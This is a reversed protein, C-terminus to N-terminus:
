ASLGAAKITKTSRGSVLRPYTAYEHAARPLMPVLIEQMIEHQLLQQRQMVDRLVPVIEMKIRVPTMRYTPAVVVLAGMAVGAGNVYPLSVTTIEVSLGDIDVTVDGIKAAVTGFTVPPLQIAAGIFSAAKIPQCCDVFDVLVAEPGNYKAFYVAENITKAISEMMCRAKDLSSAKALTKHANEISTVGVKYNSREDKELIGCQIMTALMRFAKNKTIHTSQCIQRLALGGKAELVKELILFTEVVLQLEYKQKDGAQEVAM